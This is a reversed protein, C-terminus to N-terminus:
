AISFSTSFCTVVIANVVASFIAWTILLASASSAV